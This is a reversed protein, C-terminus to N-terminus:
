NIPTVFLSNYESGSFCVPDSGLDHATGIYFVDTGSADGEWSATVGVNASISPALKSAVRTSLDNQFIRLYFYHGTTMTFGVTAEIRYRGKPPKIAMGNFISTGTTIAAFTLASGSVMAYGTNIGAEIHPTNRIYTPSGPATIFITNATNSSGSVSLAGSLAWVDKITNPGTSTGTVAVNNSIFGGQWYFGKSSDVVIGNGTNNAASCNNFFQGSTLGSAYVGIGSNHNFQCNTALGHNDNAGTQFVAGAAGSNDCFQSSTVVNNGGIFYGGVVNSNFNSNTIRHYEARPGIYIGTGSSEVYANDIIGGAHIIPADSGTFSIGTGITTCYVNRIDFGKCNFQSIATGVAPSTGSFRINRISWNDTTTANFLAGTGTFTIVSGNGDVTQGTKLTITGSLSYAGPSATITSNASAANIATVLNAGPPLYVRKANTQSLVVQADQTTTGTNILSTSTGNVAALAGTIRTDDGAAVTGATTGINLVSSGGLGSVQNNPITGTIITATGAQTAYDSTGSRALTGTVQTVPITGTIIAATGSTNAYNATGSRALTGTVQAVPITGTITLATGSTNAYNATGSRAVTGSVSAVPVGGITTHAPLTATGTITITPYVPDASRAPTATILAAFILILNKLNM